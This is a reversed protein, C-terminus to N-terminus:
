LANKIKARFKDIVPKMDNILWREIEKPSYDRNGELSEWALVMEKADEITFREIVIGLGGNGQTNETKNEESM